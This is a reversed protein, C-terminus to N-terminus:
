IKIIQPEIKDKDIKMLAVSHKTIFPPLPNTPSGPNIFLVNDMRKVSPRHTHGYILVDFSNEKAIRKMTSTGWLAGPDHYVGIKFDYVEVSNIKPLRQRVDSPDMNGYVALVPAIKELHDIVKLTVLDGAHIILNVGKFADLFTQPIVSARAPIHTDSIIGIIKM